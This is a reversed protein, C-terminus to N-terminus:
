APTSKGNVQTRQIRRREAFYCRVCRNRRSQAGHCGETLCEGENRTNTGVRIAPATM